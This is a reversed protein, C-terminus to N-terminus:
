KKNKHHIHELDRERQRDRKQKMPHLSKQLKKTIAEINLTKLKDAIMKIM